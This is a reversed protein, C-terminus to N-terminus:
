FVTVQQMIAKGNWEMPFLYEGGPILATGSAERAEKHHLKLKKPRKEIPVLRFQQLSTCTIGAGTDFLWKGKM